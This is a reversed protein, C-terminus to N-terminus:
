RASVYLWKNRFYIVDNPHHPTGRRVTSGFVPDVYSAGPTVPPVFSSYAFPGTAPPPHSLGDNLLGAVSPLSQGFAPALSCLATLVCAVFLALFLHSALSRNGSFM